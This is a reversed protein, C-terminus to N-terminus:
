LRTAVDGGAIFRSLKETREDIKQLTEHMVDLRNLRKEVSVVWAGATVIAGGALGLGSLVLGADM